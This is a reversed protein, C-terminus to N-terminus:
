SERLERLLQDRIEMVRDKIRSHAAVDDMSMAPATAGPTIAAAPTMVTVEDNEGAEVMRFRVHLEPFEARVRQRMQDLFQAHIEKPLRQFLVDCNM